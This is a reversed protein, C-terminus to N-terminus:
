VESITSTEPDQCPSLVHYISKFWGGLRVSRNRHKNSILDCVHWLITILKEIRNFRKWRPVYLKLWQKSGFNWHVIRHPKRQISRCYDMSIEFMKRLVFLFRKKQIDIRDDYRPLCSINNSSRCARIKWCSISAHGFRPITRVFALCFPNFLFRFVFMTPADLLPQAIKFVFRNRGLNKSLFEKRIPIPLYRNLPNQINYIQGGLNVATLNDPVLSCICFYNQHAYRKKRKYRLFFYSVPFLSSVRESEEPAYSLRYLILRKLQSDHTRVGGCRGSEIVTRVGGAWAPVTIPLSSPQNRAREVM